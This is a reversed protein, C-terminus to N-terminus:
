ARNEYPGRPSGPSDTIDPEYTQQFRGGCLGHHAEPYANQIAKKIGRHQDSIFMTNEPSGIADRLKSFFWTWSDEDEVHGIGFAVPYVCENANKCVAVFLIGKFRSKLHTADIAVTPRM